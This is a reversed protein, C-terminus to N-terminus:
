LQEGKRLEYDRGGEEVFQHYLEYRKNVNFLIEAKDGNKVVNKVFKGFLTGGTGDCDCPFMEPCSGRYVCEPVCAFYLAENYTKVTEMIMKWVMRTEYSAANCFRKRSINIFAQFNLSLRMNQLTNRNPVEDYDVRDSRFTSVYKEVGNHHRCFHTIVFSPVDYVNVIINGERIPSHEALLIKKKWEETPYKGSEKHITFLASDKIKQWDDNYYKVECRMKSLDAEKNAM